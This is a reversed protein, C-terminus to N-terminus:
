AAEMLARAKAKVFSATIAVAEKGEPTLAQFLPWVHPLGDRPEFAVDVGAAKAKEVARAADDYLIESRSAFVLLPPLGGFSGYLPSVRPDKADLSGFYRSGGERVTDECFMADSVANEKASAGTVALDTWPSYVFAGAPLPSGRDRLTMLLALTLGGGASDGGVTIESASIGQALLWDYAAAADEIAAPCPHEPALRYVPAFVDAEAAVALASTLTRYARPSGFVYGGGHLYFITRKGGHPPRMWEAQIRGDNVAELKVGRAILPIANREFWRRVEVPEILHLPKPKMTLRLYRSLLRTSLSPM